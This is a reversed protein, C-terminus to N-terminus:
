MAELQARTRQPTPTALPVAVLTGFGNAGTELAIARPQATAGPNVVDLTTPPWADVWLGERDMYRWRGERGAWELLTAPETDSADPRMLQLRTMDAGADTIVRLHLRGIGPAPWAPLDSSLGRLERASGQLQEEARWGPMMGALANRVWEVRLSAVASRLQGSELLREVRSIQSLAQGLITAVLAVIVLTVLMELLTLGAVRRKFAANM